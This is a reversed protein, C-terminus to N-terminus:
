QYLKKDKDWDFGVSSSFIVSVWSVKKHFIEVYASCDNYKLFHCVDVVNWQEPAVTQHRQTLYLTQPESVLVSQNQLSSNTKTLINMTQNGTVSMTTPVLGSNGTIPITGTLHGALLFNSNNIQNGTSTIRELLASKTALSVNTVNTSHQLGRNISVTNAPLTKIGAHTLINFTAPASTSIVTSPASPVHSPVHQESDVPEKKVRVLQMSERGVSFVFMYWFNLFFFSCKRSPVFIIKQM